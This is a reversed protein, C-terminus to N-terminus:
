LSVAGTKSAAEARRKELRELGLQLCIGNLIRNLDALRFKEGPQSLAKWFDDIPQHKAQM